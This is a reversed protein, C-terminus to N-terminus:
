THTIREVLPKAVQELAGYGVYLVIAEVLVAGVLVGAQVPQSLSALDIM